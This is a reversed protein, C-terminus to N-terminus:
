VICAMFRNVFAVAEVKFSSSIESALIKYFLAPPITLLNIQRILNKNARGINESAKGFFNLIKNFIHIQIHVLIIFLKMLFIFHFIVVDDSCYSCNCYM